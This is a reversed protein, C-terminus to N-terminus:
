FGLKPKLSLFLASVVAANESVAAIALVRVRIYTHTHTHTHTRTHTHARARAVVRGLACQHTYKELTSVASLVTSNLCQSMRVINCSSCLSQLRRTNVALKIKPADSCTRACMCVCMGSTIIHYVARLLLPRLM